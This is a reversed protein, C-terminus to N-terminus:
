KGALTVGIECGLTDGARTTTKVRCRKGTHTWREPHRTASDRRTKLVVSLDVRTRYTDSATTGNVSRQNRYPVDGKKRGLYGTPVPLNGNDEDYIAGQSVAYRIGFKTRCRDVKIGYTIQSGARSAIPQLRCTGGRNTHVIIAAADATPPAAIWLAALALLAWIALRKPSRNIIPGMGPM